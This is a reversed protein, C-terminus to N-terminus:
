QAATFFLPGTVSSLSHITSCSSLKQNASEFSPCNPSQLLQRSGHPLFYDCRLLSFLLHLHSLPLTTALSPSIPSPLRGAKQPTLGGGKMSIFEFRLVSLLYVSRPISLLVTVSQLQINLDDQQLGKFSIVENM